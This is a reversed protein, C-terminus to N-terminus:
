TRIQAAAIQPARVGPHAHGNGFRWSSRLLGMLATAVSTGTGSRRWRTSAPASAANRQVTSPAASTTRSARTPAATEIAQPPRSAPVDWEETVLFDWGFTEFALRGGWAMSVAAGILALLVVLAAGLVTWRFAADVGADMRQRREPMPSEAAVASM